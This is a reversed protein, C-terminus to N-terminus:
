PKQDMRLAHARVRVKPSRSADSHFTPNHISSAAISSTRRTNYYENPKCITSGLAPTNKANTGPKYARAPDYTSLHAPHMPFARWPMPNPRPHRASEQKAWAGTLTWQPLPTRRVIMPQSVETTRNCAVCHFPGLIMTMRSTTLADSRVNTNGSTNCRFEVSLSPPLGEFQQGQAQCHCQHWQPTDRM